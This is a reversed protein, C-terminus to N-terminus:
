ISSCLPNAIGPSHALRAWHRRQAGHPPERQAGFNREGEGSPGGRERDDREGDRSGRARVQEDGHEGDEVQDADSRHEAGPSDRVGNRRRDGGQKGEVPEVDRRPMWVLKWVRSVEDVQQDGQRDADQDALEGGARAPAGVDGLHRSALECPLLGRQAPHRRQDGFAHRSGLQERRHGLFGPSQQADVAGPDGAVLAGLLDDLHGM